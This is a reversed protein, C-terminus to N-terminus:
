LFLGDLLEEITAHTNTAETVNKGFRQSTVIPLVCLCVSQHSPNIYYVSSTPEPEMIYM